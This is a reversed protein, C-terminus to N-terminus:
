IGLSSAYWVWAFVVVLYYVLGGLLIFQSRRLSPHDEHARLIYFLFALGPIMWAGDERAQLALTMTHWIVFPMPIYFVTFILCGVFQPSLGLALYSGFAKAAIPEGDPEFGIVGIFMVYFTISCFATTRLLLKRKEAETLTRRAPTPTTNIPSAPDLFDPIKM